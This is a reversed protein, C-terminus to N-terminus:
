YIRVLGMGREFAGIKGLFCHSGAMGHYAIDQPCGQFVTLKTCYFFCYVPVMWSGAVPYRKLVLMNTSNVFWYSAPVMEVVYQECNISTGDGLWCTTGNALDTDQHM